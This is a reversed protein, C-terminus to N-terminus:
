IAQAPRTESLGFQLEALRKYLGGQVLLEQHTGTAVVRGEEMVVIRDAKLITALRHAIVLTTRGQMLHELAKQVLRESEADLASTAEDLLLIPANRLIARAIALRQKQGGSLRAGREGLYTHLGEPLADIFDEAVAARLADRVDDESADPRGYRVNELASAAFVVTEQPVIAMRERLNRPDVERIPVGDVSLEGSRPDYFRLLLQLVTSKGAGSPGVLAVTEGPKITMSLDNLAAVDPRSPYHFVVNSFEIAGRAPEPMPVPKEPARIDPQQALLEMIRGAAGAAQQLEGYVESLAGVAGAVIVAYFVFAALEGGSMKGAIVDTAGDWLIIDIAGFVLLIVCATLWARARIRRVSAMFAREAAGQFRKGEILEHTYAQVTQVASFSESAMSGVDAVRDQTDRSLKRVRRGFFVLPLIVLPVVVVVLATLKPSTIALLALGGILMLLNRLAISASSGVVSQILTTDATLRSVIEGSKTTDFFSPSLTIVHAYVSSRIDAVVREGLWSVLFYRAFTAAALLTAVGMLALFYQNIFQSNEASFGMDVLRRIAQGIGLTASAAFVLAILAGVLQVKYPKLFQWIYKLGGLKKKSETGNEPTSDSQNM